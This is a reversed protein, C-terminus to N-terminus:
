GKAEEEGDKWFEVGYITVGEATTTEEFKNMAEAQSKAKVYIKVRAYWTTLQAKKKKAIRKKKAM